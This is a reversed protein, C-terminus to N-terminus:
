MGRHRPRSRQQEDQGQRQAQQAQRQQREQKREQDQLKLARAHWGDLSERSPVLQGLAARESLDYQRALRRQAARVLPTLEQVREVAEAVRGELTVLPQALVGRDHGWTRIKHGERWDEVAQAAQAQAAQAQELQDGAHQARGLAATYEPDRSMLDRVSPLRERMRRVEALLRRSDLSLLRQYEADKRRQEHAAAEQAQDLMAQVKTLDADAAAQEARAARALEQEQAQREAVESAKGKRLMDTVVPGRHTSPLEDIDRDKHSRCDIRESLGARQLASNAAIEWQKRWHKVLEKGETRDDLERTKEGFGDPTMRRTTMLIHCHHNREDGEKGPAHICADVAVGHREVLARAFDYALAQRDQASLEAPLAVVIERGVTSNKRKESREAANWLAARDNSWDPSGEPVFLASAEVGGKRRYDHVEGTQEDTIEVGARYASAATVSRGESRSITKVSLHYISMTGTNYGDAPGRAFWRLPNAYTRGETLAQPEALPAM